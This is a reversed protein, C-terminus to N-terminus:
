CSTRPCPGLPGSAAASLSRRFHVVCACRATSPDPGPRTREKGAVIAHPAACSSRKVAAISGFRATGAQVAHWVRELIVEGLSDVGEHLCRCFSKSSAISSRQGWVGFACAGSCCATSQMGSPLSTKIGIRVSEKPLAKRSTRLSWGLVPM